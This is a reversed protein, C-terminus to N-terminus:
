KLFDILDDVSEKTGAMINKLYWIVDEADLLVDEGEGYASYAMKRYIKYDSKKCRPCPDEPLKLYGLIYPCNNCFSNDEEM